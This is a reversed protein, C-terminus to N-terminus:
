PNLIQKTSSHMTQLAIAMASFSVNKMRAVLQRGDIRAPPSQSDTPESDTMNHYDQLARCLLLVSDHFSATFYNVMEENYTYNYSKLARQKVEDSFNKYFDGLPQNLSVILLAQYAEKLTQKTEDSESGGAWSTNGIAEGEILETHIFAYEGSHTIKRHHAIRM